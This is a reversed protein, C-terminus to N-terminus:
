DPGIEDEEFLLLDGNGLLDVAKESIRSLRHDQSDLSRIFSLVQLGQDPRVAFVVLESLSGVEDQEDAGPIVDRIEAPRLPHDEFLHEVEDVSVIEIAADRVRLVVGGVIDGLDVTEGGAPMAYEDVGGEGLGEAQGQDLRRRAAKGDDGGLVSSRALDDSTCFRSM